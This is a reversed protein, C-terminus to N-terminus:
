WNLNPPTTVILPAAIPVGDPMVAKPRISSPHPASLKRSRELRSSMIHESAITLQLVDQPM